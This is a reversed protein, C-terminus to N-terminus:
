ALRGSFITSRASFRLGIARMPAVPNALCGNYQRDEVVITDPLPKAVVTLEDLAVLKGGRAGMEEMPEGIDETCTDFISGSTLQM